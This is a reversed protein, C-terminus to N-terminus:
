PAHARDMPTACCRPCVTAEDRVVWGATVLMQVAAERTCLMKPSALGCGDCRATFHDDSTRKLM